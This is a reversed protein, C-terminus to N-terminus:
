TERYWDAISSLGMDWGSISAVMGRKLANVSPRYVLPIAAVDDCVIDNLRIFMATRKVPDLEVEAQRMLQDYEANAWRGRNRGQWKNAKSSVEWSAFYLLFTWPDPDRGANAFMELDAWFKSATDPNGEDSSFFVAATVGKLEVEIGAKACAQKFVQQVKQRVPNTTTQFVLKLKRGGKARLGDAGRAWGAGDLLAQAKDISFEAKHNPSNLPAPNNVVNATVVGGRGYVAQQISQRDLLLSLARRVTVDSLLPNRSKPHAREGDVETNPDAFQVFIMETDGGPSFDARGNGSAEMRRLVDDELQINWAFDFEGTQLVARAASASDGGGKIEVNDFFPRNPQHYNPNLVGRV